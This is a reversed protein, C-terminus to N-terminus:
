CPLNSIGAGRRDPLESVDSARSRRSPMSPDEYARRAPMVDLLMPSRRQRDPRWVRKVRTEIKIGVRIIAMIRAGDNDGRRECIVGGICRDHYHGALGKIAMHMVDSEDAPHAKEIVDASSM